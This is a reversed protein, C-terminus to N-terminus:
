VYIGAIILYRYKETSDVFCTIKTNNNTSNTQITVTLIWLGDNRRIPDQLYIGHHDEILFSIKDDIKLYAEHGNAECDFTMNEYLPVAM